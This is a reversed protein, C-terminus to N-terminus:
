VSALATKQITAQFLPLRFILMRCQLRCATGIIVLRGGSSVWSFDPNVKPTEIPDIEFLSM